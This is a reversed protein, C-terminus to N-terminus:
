RQRNDVIGIFMNSNGVFVSSFFLFFLNWLALNLKGCFTLTIWM